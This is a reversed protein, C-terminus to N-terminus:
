PLRRLQGCIQHFDLTRGPVPLRVLKGNQSIRPPGTLWWSSGLARQVLHAATLQVAAHIQDFNYSQV